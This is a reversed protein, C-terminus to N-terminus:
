LTYKGSMYYMGITNSCLQERSGLKGKPIRSDEEEKRLHGIRLEYEWNERMQQMFGSCLGPLGLLSMNKLQNTQVCSHINTSNCSKFVSTEPFKLISASNKKKSWVSILPELFICFVFMFVVYAKQRNKNGFLKWM